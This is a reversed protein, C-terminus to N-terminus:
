QILEVHDRHIFVKTPYNTAYLLISLYYDNKKYEKVEGIYGKYINYKSEKYKIITVISGQKLHDKHFSM